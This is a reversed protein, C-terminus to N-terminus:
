LGRKIKVKNQGIENLLYKVNIMEKEFINKAEKICNKTEKDLKYM